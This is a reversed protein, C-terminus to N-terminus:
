LLAPDKVWQALGPILGADERIGTPNTEASDPKGPGPKEGYIIEQGQDTKDRVPVIAEKPAGWTLAIKCGGKETSLWFCQKVRTSLSGPRRPPLPDM